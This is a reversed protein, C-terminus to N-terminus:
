VKGGKSKHKVYLSTFDSPNKDRLPQYVARDKNYATYFLDLLDEDDLEYPSVGFRRFQRDVTKSRQSLIKAAKEYRQEEKLIENEDESEDTTRVGAVDNENKRRYKKTTDVTEPAKKKEIEEYPIIIYSKKTLVANKKVLEALYLRYYELQKRMLPNETSGVKEQISDLYDSIDVIRSQQLYQFRFDISNLIGAYTERIYEQEAPEMLEININPVEVLKCYSGKKLKVVGNRIYEFPVQDQTTPIYKEQEKKSEKQQKMLKMGIFVAGAAFLIFLLIIVIYTTM